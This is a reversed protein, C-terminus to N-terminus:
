SRRRPRSSVFLGFVGWCVFAVARALRHGPGIVENALSSLTPYLARPHHVLQWLEVSIVLGVALLWATTGRGRLSSESANLEGGSASSPVKGLASLVTGAAVVCAAVSFTWLSSELGFPRM